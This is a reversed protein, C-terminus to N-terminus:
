GDIYTLFIQSYRGDNCIHTIAYEKNDQQIHCNSPIAKNLTLGIHTSSAYITNNTITRNGQLLSISISIEPAIGRQYQVSSGYANSTTHPRLLYAPKMNRTIM